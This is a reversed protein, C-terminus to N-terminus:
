HKKTAQCMCVFCMLQILSVCKLIFLDPIDNKLLQSLSHHQGMMVSAGGAAFGVRNDKYQIGTEIFLRKIHDYLSVATASSLPILAFFSDKVGHATAVRAVSALHKTCGKDTSEDAILSFHNNRLHEFLDDRVEAGLVNKVIASCKTRGCRFSKAIDSDPCAAQVAPVLHDIVSHPVNHENLFSVLILEGQKVQTEKGQGSVSPMDMVSKTSKVAEVCKRHKKGEAHKEIESKGMLMALKVTFFNM